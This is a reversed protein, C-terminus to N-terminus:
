RHCRLIESGPTPSKMVYETLLDKPENEVREKRGMDENWKDEGRQDKQWKDKGELEQLTGALTM